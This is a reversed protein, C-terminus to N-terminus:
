KKQLESFIEKLRELNNKHKDIFQWHGYSPHPVKLIEVEGKYIKKLINSKNNQKFVYEDFYREVFLGCLVFTTVHKYKKIKSCFFKSLTENTKKNERLKKLELEIKETADKNEGIIQLPINSVNALGIHNDDLFKTEKGFPTKKRDFFINVNEGSIGMLPKKAKVEEKHPSELIFLIKINEEKGVATDPVYYPCDKNQELKKLYDELTSAKTESKPKPM